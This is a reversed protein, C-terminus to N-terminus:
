TRSPAPSKWSTGSARGIGRSGLVAPSFMYVGVLAPREEAGEAEVLRVVRGDVLEAVGPM